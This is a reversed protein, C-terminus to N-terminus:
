SQTDKQDGGELNTAVLHRYGDWKPENLFVFDYYDRRTLRSAAAEDLIVKAKNHLQIASASVRAAIPGEVAEAVVDAKAEGTALLILESSDLITGVGMTLARKPVAAPDGGFDDANQARTAPTLVKDRTRSRLSSIPENFGIHGTRGIGVLQLAIGGARAISNEYASAAATLDPAIGDPVHVRAPDLELPDIYHRKMYAAFSRPDDAALGVYEDLNFSTVDRFSIDSRSLHDYVGIMTRGTALGLVIDPREAVRTTLIKAVLAHAHTEDPCVLVEM